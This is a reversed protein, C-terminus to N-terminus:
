TNNKLLGNEEVSIRESCVHASVRSCGGDSFMLKILWSLRQNAAMSHEVKPEDARKSLVFKNLRRLPVVRTIEIKHSMKVHYTWAKSRGSLIEAKVQGM